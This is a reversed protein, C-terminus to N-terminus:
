LFDEQDYSITWDVDQFQQYQISKCMKFWLEFKVQSYYKSLAKTNVPEGM